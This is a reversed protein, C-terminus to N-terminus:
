QCINSNAAEPVGMKQKVAEWVLDSICKQGTDNPYLGMGSTTQTALVNVTPQDPATPDTPQLYTPLGDGDSEAQIWPTDPGFDQNSSHSDFYTDTTGCLHCVTDLNLTVDMKMYHDKFKDYPNVFIVHGQMATTFPAVSNAITTNLKQIVQDAVGLAPSFPTWQTTCLQVADETDQCLSSVKSTVSTSDPYMDPYGVVVIYLQPRGAFMRKYQNFLYVLNNSLTDFASQDALIATECSLAEAMQHPPTQSGNFDNFCTTVNDVITPDQQGVSLTILDPADSWTQSLQGSNIVDNSTAGNAATAYLCWPGGYKNLHDTLLHNPYDQSSSIDHGAPVDDGNAVYHKACYTLDGAKVTQAPSSSSSSSTVLLTALVAVVAMAIGLHAVRGSRRDPNRGPRPEEPGPGYM